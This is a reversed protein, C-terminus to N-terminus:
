AKPLFERLQEIPVPRSYKFGQLYSASMKQCRKEDIDDEVGEYLISYEMDKFMHALNEVIKESRQDSKSALVMSRDFKIIDFPLEMIREMNSYGTGFDDLYFRVGRQHLEEIKEKMIMFDAENRSETLEIAIRDGSISNNEIIQNIDGCFNKDKLELVSVNVSIRNIKFGEKILESLEKCTKHLIIETLVHIYGYNEALPIFKDPFVLGTEDLKLRMLAEATDFQGSQINFVPQCFVLVRPDNVDKKNYIDTLEKLIYENKNFRIIDESNVMHVTNELMIKHISRILSVYENKQSIEDIDEGIVIKYAVHFRDYEKAFGDLINSIRQEYDPNHKKTAILIVHGNGIQFLVCRRFYKTSFDRVAAKIEEPLEKGEEDYEPLLLSLFVFSSKHSYMDKIADEMARVDVSGLTINYPNSHMYYLMAIAPLVFTMTTLSSQNFILQGFRIIVSFVMTAFFGKVIEKYLLGKVKNMAFLLFVIYLCYGIMFTNSKQVSTGDASIQFGYGSFTDFIDAFVLIFFLASSSIAIKRARDHEMGTAVPIYLSYLFFTDFMLAHYIIRMIYVATYEGPTSHVLLIHYLINAVASGVLLVIINIFISFSRTRSVFSTMLLIVMVFCIAIVALDGTFTYNDFSLQTLNTM